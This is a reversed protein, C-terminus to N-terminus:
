RSYSNIVLKFLTKGVSLFNKLKIASAKRGPIPPNIYMPVEVFSYGKNSKLLKVIIETSFGFGDSLPMISRLLETKILSLGTYYRINLGFLLNCLRRYLNSVVRRSRPRVEPNDTYSIIIDATGLAHLINGISKGTIENDGPVMMFYEGKANRLGYSYHNGFGYCSNQRVYKINPERKMLATGAEIGGDEEHNCDSVIIEFNDIKGKKLEGLITECTLRILDGEKHSPVIFTILPHNTPQM